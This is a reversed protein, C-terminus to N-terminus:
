GQRLNMKIGDGLDLEIHWTRPSIEPLLDSLDILPATKGKNSLKSRWNCFSAYGIHQKDCFKKASLGSTAHASIIEQWDSKSRRIKQQNRM